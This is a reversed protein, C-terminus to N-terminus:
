WGHFLNNHPTFLFLHTSTGLLHTLRASDPAEVQTSLRWECLGVLQARGSLDDCLNTLGSIVCCNATVGKAGLLSHRRSPCPGRTNGLLELQREGFCFLPWPSLLWRATLPHVPTSPLEPIGSSPLPCPPWAPSPSVWTSVGLKLHFSKLPFPQYRISNPSFEGKLYM